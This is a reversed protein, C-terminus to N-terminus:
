LEVETRRIPVVEPHARQHEEMLRLAEALRGRIRILYDAAYDRQHDWDYALARQELEALMGEAAQALDSWEDLEPKSEPSLKRAYKLLMSAWMDLMSFLLYERSTMQESM